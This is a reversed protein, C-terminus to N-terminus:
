WSSNIILFLFGCRTWCLHVFHVQKQKDVASTQFSFVKKPLYVRAKRKGMSQARVYQMQYVTYLTTHTRVSVSSLQENTQRNAGVLDIFAAIWTDIDHRHEFYIYTQETKCDSLTEQMRENNKTVFSGAVITISSLNLEQCNNEATSFNSATKHLYADFQNRVM